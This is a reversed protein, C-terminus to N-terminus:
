SYMQGKALTQAVDLGTQPCGGGPEIMRANAALYGSVGQRMRILDAAPADIGVEGLYQNGLGSRKIDVVGESDLQIVPDIRQRSDFFFM